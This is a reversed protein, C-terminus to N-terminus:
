MGPCTLAGAGCVEAATLPASSVQFWNGSFDTFYPPPSSNLQSEGALSLAGFLPLTLNIDPAALSGNIFLQSAVNDANTTDVYAPFSTLPSAVSPDVGIGLAVYAGDLTQSSNASTGPSHSWYPLVLSGSAIVGFSASSATTVSSGLYVNAGSTYDPSYLGSNNVVHGAILTVNNGVYMGAVASGPLAPCVGNPTTFPDDTGASCTGLYVDHDAFIVGTQPLPINSGILTAPAQSWYSLVGPSTNNTTDTAGQTLLDCAATTCATDLGTTPNATTAWISVTKAAGNLIVLYAQTGAPVTATAAPGTLITNGAILCLSSATQTSSLYFPTAAGSGPCAVSFDRSLSSRLAQTTLVEPAVQRINGIPPTSSSVPSQSYFRSAPDNPTTTFGQEAEVQANLLSVTASSSSSFTMTGGTYLSGALTSCAPPCGTLQQPGASPVQNLNISSSSWLSYQETGNLRFTLTLGSSSSGVTAFIQAVLNPNSLSPPTLQIWATPTTTAAVYNWSPGCTSLGWASGPQITTSTPACVRARESYTQGNVTATFVSSYFFYPNAQLASVLTAKANAAASAAQATDSRTSEAHGANIAQTAIILVITAALVCLLVTAVLAM